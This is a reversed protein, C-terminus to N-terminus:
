EDVFRIISLTPQRHADAVKEPLGGKQELENPPAAVVEFDGVLSQLWHASVPVLVCMTSAM